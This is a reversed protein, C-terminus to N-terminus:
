TSSSFYTGEYIQQGRRTEDHIMNIINMIQDKARQMRFGNGKRRTIEKYYHHCENRFFTEGANSFPSVPLSPALSARSPALSARSPHVKINIPLEPVRFIPVDKQDVFDDLNQGPFNPPVNNQPPAIFITRPRGRTPQRGRVDQYVRKLDDLYGVNKAWITYRGSIYTRRINLWCIWISHANLNANQYRERMAAVIDQFATAKEDQLSSESLNTIGHLLTRTRFLELMFAIGESGIKKKLTIRM